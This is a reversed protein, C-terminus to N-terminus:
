FRQWSIQDFANILYWPLFKSFDFAHADSYPSNMNTPYQAEQLIKHRIIWNEILDFNWKHTLNNIRSLTFKLRCLTMVKWSTSMWRDRLNDQHKNITISIESENTSLVLCLIQKIDNLAEEDVGADVIPEHVDSSFSFLWSRTDVELTWKKINNYNTENIFSFANLLTGRLFVYTSTLLVPLIQTATQHM